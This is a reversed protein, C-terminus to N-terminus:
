QDGMDPDHIWEGNDDEPQNIEFCEKCGKKHERHNFCPKLESQKEKM